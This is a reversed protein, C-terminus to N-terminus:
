SFPSRFCSAISGFRTGKDWKSIWREMGGITRVYSRYSPNMNLLICRQRSLSFVPLIATTAIKGTLYKKEKIISNLWLWHNKKRKMMLPMIVMHSLPCLMVLLILLLNGSSGSISNTLLLISILLIPLLCCLLMMWKHSSPRHQKENHNHNGCCSM